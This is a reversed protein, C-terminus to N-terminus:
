GNRTAGSLIWGPSSRAPARRCSRRSVTRIRRTPATAATARSSTTSTCPARVWAPSSARGSAPARWPACRPPPRTGGTGIGWSRFRDRTPPSSPFSAARPAAPSARTRAWSRTSASTAGRTSSTSTRRPSSPSRAPRGPRAAARADPPRERRKRRSRHRGAELTCSFRPRGQPRGRTLPSVRGLSALLYPSVIVTGTMMSGHVSCYYQYDGPATFIRSFTAPSAQTGSDWVGDPDCNVSYGYYPDGSEVCKGSTTSHFTIASSNKFEWRVTDGVKITTTSTNSVTDRFNNGGSGVNVVRTTGAGQTPAPTPAPATPTPTPNANPKFGSTDAVSALNGSPNTFTKVYGTLTDTVTITYEVDSLAGY